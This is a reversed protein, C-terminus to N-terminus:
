REHRSRSRTPGRDRMRHHQPPRKAAATPSGVLGDKGGLFILTPAHIKRLRRGPHPVTPRRTGEHIGHNADLPPVRSQSATGRGLIPHHDQRAQSRSTPTTPLHVPRAGGAHRAVAGTGHSRAPGATAAPRARLDRSEDRDVWGDAVIDATSVDLATYVDDLWASYARGNKPYRAPDALESKGIDGITDLAYTRRHESLPTIISSWVFGGVGMPHVMLLPPLEPNESAIVHTRGFRSDVFFTEFLVPWHRLGEDYIAMLRARNEETVFVPLEPFSIKAPGIDRGRGFV